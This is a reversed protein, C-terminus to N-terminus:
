SLCIIDIHTYIYIYIFHTLSIDLTLTSLLIWKKVTWSSESFLPHIQWHCYFSLILAWYDVCQSFKLFVFNSHLGSDIYSTHEIWIVETQRWYFLIPGESGPATFEEKGKRMSCQEWASSVTDRREESMGIWKNKM